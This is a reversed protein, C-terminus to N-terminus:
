IIIALVIAQLCIIIKMFLLGIKTERSNGNYLISDNLSDRFVLTETGNYPVINLEDQTFNLDGIKKSECDNKCQANLLTLSVVIIILIKKM